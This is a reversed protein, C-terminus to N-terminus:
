RETASDSGRALAAGLEYAQELLGPQQQVEGRDDISNVCLKSVLKADITAAFARVTLLACDFRTRSWGATSLFLVERRGGGPPLPLREHLVDRRAWVCQFRDVFAKTQATLHMFFIPSALMIGDADLTKECLEQFDDAVACRGTDFCRNCAICPAVKLRSLVVHDVEADESRAGAIAQALLTDTNGNRRPSGAIALLKM